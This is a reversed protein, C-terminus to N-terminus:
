GRFVRTPDSRLLFDVDLLDTKDHEFALLVQGLHKQPIKIELEWPGNKAGVRLVPDGPRVTRSLYDETYNRNLITGDRTLGRRADEEGTFKTAKVEFLFEGDAQNPVADMLLMMNKLQNAKRAADERLEVEQQQAEKRQAPPLDLSNAQNRK